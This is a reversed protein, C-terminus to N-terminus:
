LAEVVKRRADYVLISIEGGLAYSKADTVSLALLTAAAADVANGGARLMALGADVSGQGGAVVVGRRGSASWDNAAPVVPVTACGLLVGVVTLMGLRMTPETPRWQNM